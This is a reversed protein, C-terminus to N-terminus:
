ASAASTEDAASGGRRDLPLAPMPIVTTSSRREVARAKGFYAMAGDLVQMEEILGPHQQKMQEVFADTHVEIPVNYDLYHPVYRPEGLVTVPMTAQLIRQFKPEVVGYTPGLDHSAIHGLTVAYLRWLLLDQTRANEHRAILRSVEDSGRPAPGSGFIEPYFDEVPLPADSQPTDGFGKIILRDAAVVRQDHVRNEIIGFAVSRAEDADHDKGEETLDDPHLQGTQDVYVNKRLDFYGEYERELGPVVVDGVALIGVAFRADPHDAFLDSEIVPIVDEHTMFPNKTSM